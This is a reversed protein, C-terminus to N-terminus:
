VFLSSKSFASRGCQQHCGTSCWVSDEQLMRHDEKPEHTFIQVSTLIPFPNLIGSADLALRSFLTSPSHMWGWQPSSPETKTTRMSVSGPHESVLTPSYTWRDSSSSAPIDTRWQDCTTRMPDLLSCQLSFACETSSNGKRMLNLSISSPWM